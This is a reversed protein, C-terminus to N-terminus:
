EREASEVVDGRARLRMLAGDLAAEGADPALSLRYVGLASPGDVISAGVDLLLARIAEETVQPKFTVQLAAGSDGGAQQLDGRDDRWDTVSLTGVVVLALCAAVALNRWWVAAGARASHQAAKALDSARGGKEAAAGASRSM